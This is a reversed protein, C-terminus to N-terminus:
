STKLYYNCKNQVHLKILFWKWGIWLMMCIIKSNSPTHYASSNMCTLWVYPLPTMVTTMVATIVATMVAMTVAMMVAMMVATMVATM